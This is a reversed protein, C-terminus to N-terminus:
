SLCSITSYSIFQVNDRNCNHCWSSTSPRSTRSSARSRGDPACHQSCAPLCSYFPVDAAESRHAQVKEVGRIRLRWISSCRMDESQFRFNLFSSSIILCNGGRAVSICGLWRCSGSSHGGPLRGCSVWVRRGRESRWGPMRCEVGVIRGGPGRCGSRRPTWVPPLSVPLWLRICRICWEWGRGWAPPRKGRRATLSDQLTRLRQFPHQLHIFWPHKILAASKNWCVGVCGSSSSFCLLQMIAGSIFLWLFALHGARHLSIWIDKCISIYSM